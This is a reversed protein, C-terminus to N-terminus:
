LNCFLFYKKALIYVRKESGFLFTSRRRQMRLNKKKVNKLKHGKTEGMAAM